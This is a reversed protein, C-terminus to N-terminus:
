DKNRFLHVFGHKKRKEGDRGRGVVDYYYVGPSAYRGGMIRGDWVTESFTDDFGRVDGSQWYHVRKGWRNFINIEISQMSWFQVVFEDNTGDGNPTFVNPVAIFSTDVEIYDELYVTDVCTLSDSLHKSVLRVMYTGSNEYTYFPADDYAVLMISDVPEETGESERKIKNLDHYFFWEFYGPTGNESNNSFTVDLPAEGSMPDATFKAKTVISEYLVTSQADCDFKDYVRLSYNTNETPPDYVTLNLVSAIRDGDELWEVQVDKNVFVPANSSLDNYTLVASNIEGDIRFYECNSVTVEGGAYMWNNFVWARDVETTAGQTITIRYCGDALANIQSSTADTSEQFELEFVGTTENYKEWLWTKTGTLETSATLAGVDNLSDNSCFIFIDDTETFVPYQTVDTADAGPSTIQAQLAYFSFVLITVIFLSRKM